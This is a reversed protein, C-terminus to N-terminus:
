LPAGVSLSVTTGRGQWSPMEIYPQLKWVGAQDIDGALTVYKIATDGDAVAPWTTKSGDPRRVKIQRLTASSIDADCDIIISAGIAGVILTTM